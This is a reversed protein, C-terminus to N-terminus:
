RSIKDFLWKIASGILVIPLLIIFLANLAAMDGALAGYLLDYM